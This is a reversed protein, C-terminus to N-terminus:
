RLATEARTRLWQEAEAHSRLRYFALGANAPDRMAAEYNKRYAAHRTWAWRIVSQNPDWHLLNGLRERNGNWLETRLLVRGVSRWIIQRMVRARSLDLWLVAQARGWVLSRVHTTYNGDIVWRDEACRAAVRSVFVEPAVPVWNPGHFLGDLEVHPLDLQAAIRMALTTKGSGSCGIVVIRHLQSLEPHTVHLGSPKPLRWWCNKQTIQRVFAM